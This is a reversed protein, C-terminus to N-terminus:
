RPETRWWGLSPASVALATVVQRSLGHASNNPLWAENSTKRRQYLGIGVHVLSAVELGM